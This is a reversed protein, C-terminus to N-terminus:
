PAGELLSEISKFIEYEVDAVLQQVEEETPDAISANMKITGKGQEWENQWQVISANTNSKDLNSHNIGSFDIGTVVLNGQVKISQVAFTSWLYGKWYFNKKDTKTGLPPFGEDKKEKIHRKSYPSFTNGESTLGKQSVRERIKRAMVSSAHRIGIQCKIPLNARMYQVANNFENVTKFEKM